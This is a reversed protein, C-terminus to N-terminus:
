APPPAKTTEKTKEPRQLKALTVHIPVQVGGNAEAGPDKTGFRDVLQGRLVEMKPAHLRANVVVVRDKALHSPEVYNVFKWVFDDTTLKAEEVMAKADDYQKADLGYCLTVHYTEEGRIGPVTLITCGQTVLVGIIKNAEERIAGSPPPVDVGVWNRKKSPASVALASTM